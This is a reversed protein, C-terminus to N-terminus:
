LKCSPTRNLEAAWFLSMESSVTSSTGDPGPQVAVDTVVPMSSETTATVNAPFNLDTRGVTLAQMDWARAADDERDFYGMFLTKGDHKLMATWKNTAKNRSVGNFQSTKQRRREKDFNLNKRGLARACEDWYLAAEEESDFARGQQGIGSRWKRTGAHWRVGVYRSRKRNSDSWAGATAGAADGSACPSAPMPSMPTSCTTSDARQLDAMPQAGRGNGGGVWNATDTRRADLSVATTHEKLDERSHKNLTEHQQCDRQGVTTSSESLNKSSDNSGIDSSDKSGSDSSDSQADASPSSRGRIKAQRQPQAEARSQNPAGCRPSATSLLLLLDAFKEKDPEDPKGRKAGRAAKPELGGRKSVARSM